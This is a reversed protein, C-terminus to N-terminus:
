LPDMTLVRYKAIMPGATPSPATLQWSQHVRVAVQSGDATKKARWVVTIDVDVFDGSATSSLAEVVHDQDAYDVGVQAYWRTFDDHSRLTREPFVMELGEDIVFPLVEAVPAHKNLLEFWSQIFGGIEQEVEVAMQLEEVSRVSPPADFTRAHSELPAPAHSAEGNTRAVRTRHLTEFEVARCKPSQSIGSM